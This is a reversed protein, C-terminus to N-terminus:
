NAYGWDRQWQQMQAIEREQAAVIAITLDRLEQREANEAGPRAMAVASQHHEIMLKLFAEDFEDGSLESLEKTMAAMMEEMEGNGHDMGAMVGSGQSATSYGWEKKWAEMDRIEQMQADIIEQSMDKLEQHQAENRALYAMSVAGQHHAIMEAIFAKDYEEGKMAAYQAELDAFQSESGESATAANHSRQQNQVIPKTNLDYVYMGVGALLGVAVVATLVTSRKLKKM